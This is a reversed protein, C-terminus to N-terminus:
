IVVGQVSANPRSAAAFAAAVKDVHPPRPPDDQPDRFLVSVRHTGPGVRRADVPPDNNSGPLCLIATTGVPVDVTLHLRGERRSWDVRAPGAGLRQGHQVGGPEVEGLSTAGAFPHGAQRCCTPRGRHEAGVVQEREAQQLLGNPEAQLDRLVEGDDAVVVNREGVGRHHRQGRDGLRAV